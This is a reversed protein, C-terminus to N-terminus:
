IQSSLHLSHCGLFCDVCERVSKGDLPQDLDGGRWNSCAKHSVWDVSNPSFSTIYSRLNLLLLDLLNWSTWKLCEYSLNVTYTYVQLTNPSSILMEIPSNQTFCITRWLILPGWGILQLGSYSWFSHGGQALLFEGASQRSDEDAVNAIRSTWATAECQLNQFDGVEM